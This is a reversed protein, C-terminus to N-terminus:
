PTLWIPWCLPVHRETKSKRVESYTAFEQTRTGRNQYRQELVADSAKLHIHHVATGYGDRIAAVQGSIRVSDIVYFGGATPTCDIKDIYSYLANKVWAGKDARDLQEGARQLAGRDQKVRPLLHTILDRTKIIHAGYRSRLMEALDTKGSSIPGSLVVIRLSM